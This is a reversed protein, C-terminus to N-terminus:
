DREARAVRLSIAVYGDYGTTASAVCIIAAYFYLKKLGPDKRWDVRELHPADALVAEVDKVPTPKKLNTIAVPM